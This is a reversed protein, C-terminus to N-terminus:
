NFEFLLTVNVDSVVLTPVLTLNTPKNLWTRKNRYFNGSINIGECRVVVVKHGPSLFRSVNNMM